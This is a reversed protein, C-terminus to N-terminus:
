DIVQVDSIGAEQYLADVVATQGYLLMLQHAPALERAVLRQIDAPRLDAIRQALQSYYDDPLKYTAIMELEDAISESDLSDALIERLARRRARVFTARDAGSRLEDLAARLAAFSEGARENDLSASILLLGPGVRSSQSVSVGYTAGLRERLASLKEDVMERLVMRAAHHAAFGPPTDFAVLVGAQSGGDVYRALYQAGTRAVAPPVKPLPPAAGPKGWSFLRRIESEMVDVDFHGTVIMTAGQMRYHRDRFRQLDDESINAVNESVQSARAYPHHAGYLITLLTRVRRNHERAGSDDARGRAGARESAQRVRALTKPEYVGSELLWHLWWLLGGAYASMGTVRFTTTQEDMYRRLRGGMQLIVKIQEIMALERRSNIKPWGASLLNMALLAVGPKGVPAHLSGARFMIRIDIVPYALSPVLVVELGSDLVVSRTRAFHMREPVAPSTEALAPDVQKHWERIDYKKPTLASSARIEVAGSDSAPYLYTTHSADRRLLRKAQTTMVALRAREYADLDGVLFREHAAYQAYDAYMSAQRMFPEASHVLQARAYERHRVFDDRDVGEDNLADMDQFFLDVVERLREPQDVSLSVLLLPARGGGGVDVSVDTVFVHESRLRHLRERLMQTLMRQYMAENTGFPAAVFAVIATAEEVDVEHRSEGGTLRIAEILRRRASAVKDIGGFRKGLESVVRDGDVNGSVVLIAREPAYHSALFECVDDASINALEAETGGVSRHYAHGAGYVDARLLDYARRDPGARTRLESRVVDRERAILDPDIAACDASMRRAEVALLASLDERLGISTYHTEDWVTYANHDVAHDGLFSALTPGGSDTLRAQFSVHEALHALGAKGVPDEAAGVRYRMDVKVLNTQDNPLLLIDLGNKAQFVRVRQPFKMQHYTAVPNPPHNIYGPASCAAGVVAAALLAHAAVARAM